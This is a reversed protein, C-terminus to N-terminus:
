RGAGRMVIEVGEIQAHFARYHPPNGGTFTVHEDAAEWLLATAKLADGRCCFVLEVRVPPPLALRAHADRTAAIMARLADLYTM